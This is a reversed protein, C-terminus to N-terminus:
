CACNDGGRANRADNSITIHDPFENYVDVETEQALANKAITHFAQEVNIGEKASHFQM